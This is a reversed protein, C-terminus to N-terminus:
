DELYNPDISLAKDKQGNEILGPLYTPNSKLFNSWFDSTINTQSKAGLVKKSYYINKVNVLSLILFIFVFVVFILFKTNENVSIKRM